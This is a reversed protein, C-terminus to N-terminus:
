QVNDRIFGRRGAAGSRPDEPQVPRHVELAFPDTGEDLPRGAATATTPWSVRGPVAQGAAVIQVTRARITGVRVLPGGPREGGGPSCAQVVAVAVAALVLGATIGSLLWDHAWQWSRPVAGVALGSAVSLSAALVAALGAWVVVLRQRGV